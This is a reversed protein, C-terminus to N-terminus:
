SWAKKVAAILEAKTKLKEVDIESDEAFDRLEKESMKDLDPMGAAAQAAKGGRLEALRKQADAIARELGAEDDAPAEDVLAFKPSFGAPGNLELLNQRTEIVDGGNKGDGAVIERVNGDKDPGTHSGQLVRYRRSPGQAVRVGALPNETQTM